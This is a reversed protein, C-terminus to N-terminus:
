KVFGESDYQHVLDQETVKNCQCLFLSQINESKKNTYILIHFM